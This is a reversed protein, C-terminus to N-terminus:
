RKKGDETEKKSMDDIKKDLLKKLNDNKTNDRVFKYIELAKEPEKLSKEFVLEVYPLQQIMAIEAKYDELIEEIVNGARRYEKSKIYIDRMLSLATYGMVKGKNERAIKDYFAAAERFARDAREDDGKGIYYNGIYIPIQMGLPTDNYKDRLIAYEALAKDWQNQREYVNGKVFYARSLTMKDADKASIITDLVPLAKDYKKNYIYFEALAFRTAKAADTEPYKELIKQLSKEVFDRMSPPVVDPNATIKENTKAARYLMKEAVYENDVSFLTLAIYVAVLISILILVTKKM